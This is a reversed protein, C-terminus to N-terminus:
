ESKRNVDRPILLYLLQNLPLNIVVMFLGSLTTTMAPAFRQIIGVINVGTEPSVDFESFTNLMAMVTGILGLVPLLETWQLCASQIRGLHQVFLVRNSAYRMFVAFLQFLFLATGVSLIIWDFPSIYHWYASFM